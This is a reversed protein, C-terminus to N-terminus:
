LDTTGCQFRSEQLTQPEIRSYKLLLLRLHELARAEAGHLVDKGALSVGALEPGRCERWRETEVTFHHLVARESRPWNVGWPGENRPPWWIIPFKTHVGLYCLTSCNTTGLYYLWSNRSELSEGAEAESYSLRYAHSVVGSMHLARLINAKM